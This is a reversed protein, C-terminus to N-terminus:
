PQRGKREDFIKSIAWYGTSFVIVGPIFVIGLSPMLASLAATGIIGAGISEFMTRVNPAHLLNVIDPVRLDINKELGDVQVVLRGDKFIKVKRDEESCLVVTSGNQKSATVAAAHRTGFGPFPSINKINAGYDKVIGETTIIIAGDVTGLSVLTKIAGPEFVSFEHLRQQLLLEYDCSGIVFLAGEGKRCIQIAAELVKKEVASSSVEAPEIM